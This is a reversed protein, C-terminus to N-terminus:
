RTAVRSRWFRALEDPLPLGMMARAYSEAFVEEALNDVRGKRGFDALHAHNAMNLFNHMGDLHLSKFAAYGAPDVEQGRHGIEHLLVQLQTQPPERTLKAEVEIADTDPDYRANWASHDDVESVEALGRHYRMADLRKADAIAQVIGADAVADARIAARVRELTAKGKATLMDAPLDRLAYIYQYACRCSIEEAPQTQDDTFGAGPAPRVLGANHAWSGRVLWFRGDREKHDERYDYGAQRWHSRWMGAIAGGDTAVIDSISAVLKHGQDILVRREEFPLQALSKRIAKKTQAKDPEAAGGAPISTSWGQFRRLTKNIAEDRNLRILSASAAIRQDLVTRLAPRLRDITFRPVGTHLKLLGGGDVMDSYKRALADRLQTEISAPDVLSREAANRLKRTWGAIREVSDFGHEALDNIAATLVSYFDDGHSPM